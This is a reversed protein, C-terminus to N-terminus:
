TTPKTTEEMIAHILEKFIQGGKKGGEKGEMPEAEQLVM